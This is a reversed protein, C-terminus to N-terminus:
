NRQAPESMGEKWLALPIEIEQSTGPDVAIMMEGDVKLEVLKDGSPGVFGRLRAPNGYVLGYDPVDKTVVSGAGVLAWKGVKTGCVITSNAGLGAGLRILTPSIIWDETSKLSGDPNIARPKLDNTFCVHPGVMVGDEIVVGEYVSVYNQIKVNSGILVHLDVFVGKGLNCNSGIVAEERIQVHQWIATGDGITAEPSVDATSHVRIAM